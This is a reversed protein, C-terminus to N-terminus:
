GFPNAAPATAAVPVRAPAPATAPSPPLDLPEPESPAAPASGIVHPEGFPEIAVIKIRTIGTDPNKVPGAMITAMRDPLARMIDLGKMDAVSHGLFAESWERAKSKPGLSTSSMQSWEAVKGTAPDIVPGGQGALNMRWWITGGNGYDQGDEVKLIKAIYKGMEPDFSSSESPDAFPM